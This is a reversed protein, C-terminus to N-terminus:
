NKFTNRKSQRRKFQREYSIDPYFENESISSISDNKEVQNDVELLQEEFLDECKESDASERGSDTSIRLVLNQSEGLRLQFQEIQKTSHGMQEDKKELQTQM